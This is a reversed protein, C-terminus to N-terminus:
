SYWKKVLDMLAVNQYIMEKGVKEMTLFGHQQLEKLRTSATQRTISFEDKFFDIKTYFHSYLYDVLENADRKPLKEKMLKKSDEMSRVIDNIFDITFIATEKIGELLYRVFNRINNEEEGVLKFLEYYLSKNKNIYRSLYLVPYPIKNKLVLYLVNIVRGTRGNGDHFPHISEFQYHIIGMNILPDYDDNQNIYQELNSLYELIELESQPPVHVIENTIMNKIVTGPVKRISGVNEEIENHVEKILRINILDYENIYHYGKKIAKHYRLVEKASAHGVSPNTMEQFLEDYTTVINEIESSDKAEGLTVANLLVEPNPLQNLVGKLEGIKNNAESLLKLTEVDYLDISLPLKYM